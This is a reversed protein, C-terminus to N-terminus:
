HECECVEDDTCEEINELIRTLKKDIAILARELRAIDFINPNLSM